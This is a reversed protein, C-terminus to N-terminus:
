GKFYVKIKKLTTGSIGADLLSDGAKKVAEITDFGADFLRERGPLDSPLPNPIEDKEDPLPIIYGGKLLMEANKPTVWGISGEFYAFDWHPKVWRVKIM